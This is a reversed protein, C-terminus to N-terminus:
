QKEKLSELYVRMCEATQEFEPKVGILISVCWDYPCNLYDTIQAYNFGAKRLEIATQKDIRPITMAKETTNLKFGLTGCTEYM